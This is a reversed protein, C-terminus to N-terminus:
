AFQEQRIKGQRLTDSARREFWLPSHECPNEGRGNDLVFKPQLAEKSTFADSSLQLM